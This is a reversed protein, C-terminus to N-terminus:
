EAMEASNWKLISRFCELDECMGVEVGCWGECWFM